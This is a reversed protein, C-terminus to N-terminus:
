YYYPASYAALYPDVSLVPQWSGKSVNEIRLLYVAEPPWRAISWDDGPETPPVFMHAQLEYM